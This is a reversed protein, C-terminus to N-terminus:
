LYFVLWGAIIHMLPLAVLTGVAVFFYTWNFPDQMGNDEQM